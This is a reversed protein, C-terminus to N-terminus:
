TNEEKSYEKWLVLYYFSLLHGSKSEKTYVVSNQIAELKYKEGNNGNGIDVGKTQGKQRGAREQYHKKRATICPFYWSDEM